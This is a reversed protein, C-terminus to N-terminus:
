TGLGLGHLVTRAFTGNVLIPGMSPHRRAIFSFSKQYASNILTPAAKIDKQLQLTSDWLKRVDSRLLGPYAALYPTADRDQRSKKIDVITFAERGESPHFPSVPPLQIHKKQITTNGNSYGSLIEKAHDYAAIIAYMEPFAVELRDSTLQIVGYESLVTEAMVDVKNRLSCTSTLV